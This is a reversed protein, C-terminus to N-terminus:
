LLFEQFIENENEDSIFEYIEPYEQLSEEIYSSVARWNEHSTVEGFLSGDNKHDNIYFNLISYKWSDDDEDLYLIAEILVKRYETYWFHSLLIDLLEPHVKEVCDFLTEKEYGIYKFIKEMQNKILSKLYSVDDGDNEAFHIYSSSLAFFLHLYDDTEIDDEINFNGVLYEYVDGSFDVLPHNIIFDRSKEKIEEYM